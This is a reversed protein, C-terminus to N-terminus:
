SPEILGDAHTNSTCIHQLSAYGSRVEKNIYYYCINVHKIRAHYSRLTPSSSLYSTTESSSLLSLTKAMTVFSLLCNAYGPQKGQQAPSPTTRLKLLQRPLSKSTDSLEMMSSLSTIEIRVIPLCAM